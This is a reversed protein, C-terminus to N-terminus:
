GHALKRTLAKTGSRVASTWRKANRVMPIVGRNKPAMSASNIEITRGMQNKRRLLMVAGVAAGIVTSAVIGQIMRNLL